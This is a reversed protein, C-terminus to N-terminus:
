PRVCAFRRRLHSELHCRRRKGITLFRELRDLCARLRAVTWQGLLQQRLTTLCWFTLRWSSMVGDDETWDAGRGMQVEVLQARLEAGVEAQLLWGILVLRVVAEVAQPHSVRLHDLRLISKLRKFVLEIQWRSRYLELVRDTPWEERKLTTVLLMWGAMKLTRAQAKRGKTAAKKRARFQARETAKPSLRVALVRVTHVAQGVRCMVQRERVRKRGTGVWRALDLPKGEKTVFPFTQLHIRLVVDARARLVPALNRRYGYGRDAVVIDGPEVQYHDLHEGSFRDAVVLQSLHGAGFDYATHVRWDAGTGGPTALVTADVLLIRRSTPHLPPGPPVAVLEQLLWLLWAASTRLRKRWAAESIDALGLVVAWAGLLRFSSPGLAYVLLARLLDSSHSIARKRTIAGLHRAYLDRTAPLLPVVDSTWLDDAQLASSLSMHDAM